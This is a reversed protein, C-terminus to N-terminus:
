NIFAAAIEPTIRLPRKTQADILCWTTKAEALVKGTERLCIKVYRDSKAGSYENVWTYAIIEDGPLAQARYDIEHRLVIWHYKQQVDAPAAAEWHAVATEQVWRLYVVNNVHGLHDIDAQTITIPHAFPRKESMITNAPAFQMRGYYTLFLLWRIIEPLLYFHLHM